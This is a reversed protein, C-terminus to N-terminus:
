VVRASARSNSVSLLAQSCMRQSSSSRSLSQCARQDFGLCVSRLCGAGATWWVISLIAGPFRPLSSWESTAILLSSRCFTAKSSCKALSLMVPPVSFSASHKFSDFITCSPRPHQFFQLPTQCLRIPKPLTQHHKAPDRPTLYRRTPGM